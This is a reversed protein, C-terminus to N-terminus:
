RPKGPTTLGARSQKSVDSRNRPSGGGPSSGRDDLTRIGDTGKFPRGDVTKGFLEVSEDGSEIGSDGVRFHLVLDMVGDGDVDV